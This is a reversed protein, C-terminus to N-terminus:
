RRRPSRTRSRRARFRPRSTMVTVPTATGAVVALGASMRETEEAFSEIEPLQHTPFDTARRRPMINKRARLRAQARDGQSTRHPRGRHHSAASAEPRPRGSRKRRGGETPDDVFYFIRGGATVEYQWRDYTQGEYTGTGYTKGELRKQRSSFQTPNTALQDYAAALANPEQKAWRDWEDAVGKDAAM